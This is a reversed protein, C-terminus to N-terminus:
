SGQYTFSSIVNGDADVLSATDGENRWMHQKTWVQDNATPAAANVGSHIRVEGGPMLVLGAPFSYTQGGRGSVLQWGTMDQALGSNQIVVCEDASQYDLQAITPKGVSRAAM